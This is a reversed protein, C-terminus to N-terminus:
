ASHNQPAPCAPLSTVGHGRRDARSLPRNRHHEILDEVGGRTMRWTRGVHYGTVEGRNLRHALWRVGNTMDPPLVM